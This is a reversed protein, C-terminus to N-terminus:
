PGAAPLGARRDDAARSARRELLAVAFCAIGESRGLSGLGEPRTAKVHVPGGAAASLRSMMEARLPAVRPREAVLSCDANCLSWGEAGVLSACAALLALSDAGRWRQDTDPFHTGLDGIGAAGLMAEAVAHALVDADSHGELPTEGEFAVGGLVLCRPSVAPTGTEFPHVDVAFGVRLDSM